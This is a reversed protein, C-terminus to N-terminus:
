AKRQKQGAPIVPGCPWQQERHLTMIMYAEAGRRDWSDLRTRTLHVIGHDREYEDEVAHDTAVHMSNKKKTSGIILTEDTTSEHINM